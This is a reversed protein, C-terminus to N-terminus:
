VTKRMKRAVGFGILGTALLLTLAPEPAQSASFTFIGAATSTGQTSFEWSYTATDEGVTMLGNGTILRYSSILQDATIALLDFSYGPGTASSWLPSIPLTGVTLPSYNVTGGNLPLFSGDAAGVNVPNLFTFVTATNKDGTDTTYIGDFNITGSIGIASATGAFVTLAFAIVYKHFKNM